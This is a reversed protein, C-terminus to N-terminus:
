LMKAVHFITLYTLMKDSRLKRVIAPHSNQSRVNVDVPMNDKKSGGNMELFCERVNDRVAHTLARKFESDFKEIM